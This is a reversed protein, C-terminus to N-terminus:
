QTGGSHDMLHIVIGDGVIWADKPGSGWVGYLHPKKKSVPFAATSPKWTTGDWHLITGNNGVAWVDNAGSGWIANLSETTPSEVVDWEDATAAGAGLHRITGHDGVTWLDNASSGWIGRLVVAARSDIQSWVIAGDKRTGHMTQGAQKDFPRSDAILWLDDASSGWIGHITSLGLEPAWEVDAGTASKVFQNNLSGDEGWFYGGGFRVDNTSSGWAAYVPASSGNTPVNPMRVWNASGNAFGESHFIMTTSSALWVDNPGSGWLAHFTDRIPLNTASPVPVASWAVGNWHIATGGSGSAWVDSEGSGWVSTLAYFNSVGTAVPCWDAEACTVVVTVCTPDSPDCGGDVAADGADGIDGADNTSADLVTTSGPPLSDDSNTSACNVLALLTAPAILLGAALATTEFRSSNM